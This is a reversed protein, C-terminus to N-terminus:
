SRKANLFTVMDKALMPEGYLWGQLYDCEAHRLARSQAVDEVGEATVKLKLEHALNIMARIVMFGRPRTIMSTLKPDLKVGDAPIDVLWALSSHGAGFDDLVLGAGAARLASLAGLARDADRLAAQETLEIRLVGRPLSLQKIAQTTQEVLESRAIEAASLNVQMFVDGIIRRFHSLASAAAVLMIPGVMTWDPSSGQASLEDPGLLAGNPMRWRALAEFGVIEGSRADHICQYVPTLGKESAPTLSREQSDGYILGHALGSEIFSGVFRVIAGDKLHVSEDIAQGAAGSLLLQELPGGSLGDFQELFDRMSWDGNLGAVPRGAGGQISMRAGSGRWTWVAARAAMIASHSMQNANM